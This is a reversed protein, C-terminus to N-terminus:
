SGAGYIRSKVEALVTAADRMAAVQKRDPAPTGAWDSRSWDLTANLHTLFRRKVVAFEPLRRRMTYDDDYAIAVAYRMQQACAIAHLAATTRDQDLTSLMNALTWKGHGVISCAIKLVQLDHAGGSIKGNTIASAIRQWRVEIMVIGSVASRFPKSLYPRLRDDCLWLDTGVLLEVAAAEGPTGNACSEIALLIQDDSM